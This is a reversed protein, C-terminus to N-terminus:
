KNLKERRKQNEANIHKHKIHRSSDLSFFNGCALRKGIDGLRFM